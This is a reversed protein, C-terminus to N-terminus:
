DALRFPRRVSSIGDFDIIDWPVGLEDARKSLPGEAPVVLFPDIRPSTVLDMLSREAGGKFNPVPSLFLVRLRNM